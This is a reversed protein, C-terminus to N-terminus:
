DNDNTGAGAGGLRSAESEPVYTLQALDLAAQWSQDSIASARDRPFPAGSLEEAVAAELGQQPPLKAMLAVEVSALDRVLRDNDRDLVSQVGDRGTASMRAGAAAWIDAVGFALRRGVLAKRLTMHVENFSYSVGRESTPLDLAM